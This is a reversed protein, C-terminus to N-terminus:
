HGGLRRAVAAFGTWGGWSAHNINNSIDIELPQLMRVILQM